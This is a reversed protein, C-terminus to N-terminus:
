AQGLREAVDAPTWRTRAWTRVVRGDDLLFLEIGHRNVVSATYGVRLGFHARLLDWGSVARFMRVAPGFPLGRDRGYRLLRAPIDFGPDYTVAAVQVSGLRDGLDRCLEGLSTITLSCKRPNDCRTYFFAVVTPARTLFDALVVRQGDQDEVQVERPVPEPDPQRGDDLAPTAPMGGGCCHGPAAALDELVARVAEGFLPGETRALRRLEQRAEGPLELEQLTALVELLPTTRGVTGPGRAHGGLTVVDDRGAMNRLAQLLPRALRPDPPRRGRAARAAAAVLVPEGGSELEEVVFALAADPLGAAGLAVLAEARVRATAAASHGAHAPCDEALLELLRAPAGDEAM